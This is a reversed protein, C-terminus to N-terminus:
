CLRLPDGNVAVCRARCRTRDGADPGVHRDDTVDLATTRQQHEATDLALQAGGIEHDSFASLNLAANLRIFDGDVAVDLADNTGHPHCYLATGDFTVDDM